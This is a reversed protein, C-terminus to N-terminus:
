GGDAGPAWVETDPHFAAWAGWFAIHATAVPEMTMGARPGFQSRGHVGWRSGSEDEIGFESVSFSVPAGDVQPWHYAMAAGWRRDWLVVIPDGGIEVAVAAFEGAEDLLGFPFAVGGGHGDPIGLVREKPPRRPDLPPMEDEHLYRRDAEYQGYPNFTYDRDLDIGSESVVVTGPHLAQWGEWTAELVPVRPLPTGRDPGCGAVGEMQVWLSEEGTRNWMVLNNKYLLGSVGFEQGNVAERGFALASGTLPCYSVTVPGSELDLNVIEHHWFINHPIAMAQGGLVVGVVRDSPELYGLGEPSEPSTLLPNTLSPVGDRDVGGDAMYALDLDCGLAELGSGAGPPSSPDSCAGVLLFAVAASLHNAASRPPPGPVPAPPRRASAGWSTAGAARRHKGNMVDQLPPDPPWM